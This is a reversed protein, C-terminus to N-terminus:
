LEKVIKVNAIPITIGLRTLGSVTKGSEFKESWRAYFEYSQGEEKMTDAEITEEQDNMYKVLFKKM